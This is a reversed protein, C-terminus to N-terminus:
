QCGQELHAECKPVNATDICEELPTLQAVSGGFRPNEELSDPLRKHILQAATLHIGRDRYHSGCVHRSQAFNVRATVVIREDRSALQATQHYTPRKQAVVTRHDNAKKCAEQTGFPPRGRM